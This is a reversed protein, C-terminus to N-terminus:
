GRPGRGGRGGRDGRGGRHGQGNRGGRHHGRDDRRRDERRGNGEPARPAPIYEARRPVGWLTAALRKISGWLSRPPELPIVVPEIHIRAREPHPARDDRRPRDGEARPGRDERRPRFEGDPRPGRDDRRPRFDGEARPERPERPPRPERPAPAAGRALDGSLKETLDAPDSVAGIAPAPTGSGGNSGGRPQGRRGFSKPPAIEGPKAAPTTDGGIVSMPPLEAHSSELKADRLSAAPAPAPTEPAPNEAPNTPENM